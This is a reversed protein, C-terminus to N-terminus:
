APPAQGISSPTTTIPPVAVSTAPGEMETSDVVTQATTMESTTVPGPPAPTPEEAASVNSFAVGLASMAITAGAGVGAAVM